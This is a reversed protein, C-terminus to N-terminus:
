RTALRTLGYRAARLVSRGPATSSCDAVAFASDYSADFEHCTSSPNPELAAASDLDAAVLYLPLLDGSEADTIRDFTLGQQAVSRFPGGGGIQGFHSFGVGLTGPLVVGIRSWTEGDNSQYMVCPSYPTFDSLEEAVLRFQGDLVYLSALAVWRPDQNIGTDSDVWTTGNWVTVRMSAAIHRFGYAIAIRSGDLSMSLNHARDADAALCDSHDAWTVSAGLDTGDAAYATNSAPDYAAHYIDRRRGDHTSHRSTIWALHILGDTHLQAAHLYVDPHSEPANSIDIIVSAGSWTAGHDTSVQHQATDHAGDDGRYFAHLDGNTDCVIFPYTGQGISQATWASIDHPADSKLHQIATNHAGWLIHLHGNSDITVAPSGHANDADLLRDDIQSAPTFSAANHDYYTIFLDRNLGLYAVYTRNNSPAYVAQPGQIYPNQPAAGSVAVSM